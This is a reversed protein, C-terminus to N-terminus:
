HEIKKNSVDVKIIFNQLNFIQPQISGIDKLFKLNKPAVFDGAIIDVQKQQKELFHKWALAGCIADASQETNLVILIHKGNDILHHLQQIENFAM